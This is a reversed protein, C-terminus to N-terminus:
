AVDGSGPGALKDERNGGLRRKEITSQKIEFEQNFNKIQHKSFDRLNLIDDSESGGRGSDRM